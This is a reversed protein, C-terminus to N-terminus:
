PLIILSCLLALRKNRNLPKNWGLLHVLIFIYGEEGIWQIHKEKEKGLRLLDNLAYLVTKKENSDLNPKLSAITVM